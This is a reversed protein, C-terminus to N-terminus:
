SLILNSASFLLPGMLMVEFDSKGNGDTDGQLLIDNQGRNQQIRLQGAEGYFERSGIWTFHQLGARDSDADVRSLDIRDDAAFDTIVDRLQPHSLSSDARVYVFTDSGGGYLGKWQAPAGPLGFFALDRFNNPASWNLALPAGALWDAGYGGSIIDHGGSGVIGDDRSTGITSPALAGITLSVNNIAAVTFTGYYDDKSATYFGVFNPNNATPSSGATDPLRGAAKETAAQSRLISTYANAEFSYNPNPKDASPDANTYGYNWVNWNHAFLQEGSPQPVQAGLGGNMATWSTNTSFDFGFAPYTQQPNLSSASTSRPYGFPSPGYPVEELFKIWGAPANPPWYAQQGNQVANAMIVQQQWLRMPGVFRQNPADWLNSPTGVGQGSAASTVFGGPPLAAFGMAIEAAKLFGFNHISGTSDTINTQIPYAWDEIYSMDASFGSADITYEYFSFPATTNWGIPEQGPNAFLTSSSSVYIRMQPAAEIAITNLGTSLTNSQGPQPPQVAFGPGVVYYYLTSGSQNNITLSATAM